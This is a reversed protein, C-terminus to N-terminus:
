TRGAALGPQRPRGPLGGTAELLAGLAHLTADVDNAAWREPNEPNALWFPNLVRSPKLVGLGPKGVEVTVSPTGFAGLLYADLQGAIAGPREVVPRYAVYRQRAQFPGDFVALARGLSGGESEAHFGDLGPKFVVAGFSHFNVAACFRESEALRALGACEPESLPYPGRYYAAGRRARASSWARRGPVRESPFNRNPDVGSATHRMGGADVWGQSQWVREAGDPNVLPAVIVQARELLSRTEADGAASRELLARAVARAVYGAVFEGGHIQGSVLLRAGASSTGIRLARLPRGDGSHGYRELAACAPHADALRDLLADAESPSPYPGGDLPNGWKALVIAGGYAVAAGALLWDLM